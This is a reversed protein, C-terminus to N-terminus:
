RLFNEALFKAKELICAYETIDNMHLWNICERKRFWTLQRKAYNRTKMKLMEVCSELSSEGKLFPLLEKHGIAQASTSGPTLLVPNNRAEEILGNDLMVDIRREIREYLVKRDNFDIGLMLAEFPSAEERSQRLREGSKVGSVEYMELARVVRKLNNEHLREATEPEVKKLREWLYSNGRTQALRYMEERFEKNQGHEDFVIHEVLSSIYLGTGGVVVPLVSKAALEAIKERALGLWEAVSFVQEAERIGFLHHPIGKRESDDPMACAIDMGRYVQMSDANIVEGGFKDAIDVALRTKGTATAGCVVIIKIKNM